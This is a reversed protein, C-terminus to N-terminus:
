GLITLGLYTSLVTNFLIFTLIIPILYTLSFISYRTFFGSIPNRDENLMAEIRIQKRKSLILLCLLLGNLPLITLYFLDEILDFLSRTRGAYETLQTTWDLLGFSTSTLLSCLLLAVGILMLTRNRSVSKKDMFAAVPVEVLSVLSTIAALFMLLFFIAAISSAGVYGLNPELGVFIKPLISFIISVSSDALQDPTLQTNFLFLAPLVLLGAIFAVSTDALAIANSASPVSASKSLYSGYTIMCGMGLSLSFFAQSLAANIVSANLKGFDPILYYKVGKDAGDQTLVFVVLGVLIVFLLPMLLKSVREIGSKVGGFLILVIIMVVVFVYLFITPSSVIGEFSGNMALHNLGGSISCFFYVLLWVSVVLYFVSIMFPTLVGLYGAWRWILKDDSFRTFVGLPGKGVNRGLAVEAYMIPLCIFLIFFTYAILFAGGGNKIAMVPFGVLNGIGVASGAGALVFGLKSSFQERKQNM